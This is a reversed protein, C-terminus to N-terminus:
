TRIRPQRRVVRRACYMDEWGWTPMYYMGKSRERYVRVHNPSPPAAVVVRGARKVPHFPQPPTELRIGLNLLAVCTRNDELETISSEVEVKRVGDESFVHAYEKSDCFVTVLNKQLRRVLIYALFTTKGVFLTV